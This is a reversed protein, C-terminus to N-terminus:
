YVWGLTSKNSCLSRQPAYTVFELSKTARKRKTGATSITSMQWSGQALLDCVCVDEPKSVRLFTKDGLLHMERKSARDWSLCIDRTCVLSIGRVRWKRVAAKLLNNCEILRAPFNFCLAFGPALAFEKSNIFRRLSLFDMGKGATQNLPADFKEKILLFRILKRKKILWRRWLLCPSHPAHINNKICEV